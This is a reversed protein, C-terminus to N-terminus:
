TDAVDAAVCVADTVNTTSKELPEIEIAFDSCVATEVVTCIPVGPDFSEARAYAILRVCRRGDEAISM